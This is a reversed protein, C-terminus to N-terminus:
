RAIRTIVDENVRKTVLNNVISTERQPYLLSLLIGDSQRQRM